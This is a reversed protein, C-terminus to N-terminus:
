SFGRAPTMKLFTHLKPCGVAPGAKVTVRLGGAGRSEPVEAPTSNNKVPTANFPWNGLHNYMHFFLTAIYKDTIFCVIM